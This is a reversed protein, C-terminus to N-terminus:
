CKKLKENSSVNKYTKQEQNSRKSNSSDLKDKSNM